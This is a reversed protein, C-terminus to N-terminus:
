FRRSPASHQERHVTPEEIKPSPPLHAYEEQPSPNETKINCRLNINNQQEDKESFFNKKTIILKKKRVM